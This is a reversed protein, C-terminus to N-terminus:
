EVQGVWRQTFCSQAQFIHSTCPVKEYSMMVKSLIFSYIFLISPTTENGSGWYPAHVPDPSLTTLNIFLFLTTTIRKSSAMKSTHCDRCVTVTQHRSKKEKETDVSKGVPVFPVVSVPSNQFCHSWTFCLCNHIKPQENLASFERGLKM